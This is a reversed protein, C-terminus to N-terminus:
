ARLRFQVPRHRGLQGGAHGAGADHRNTGGAPRHSLGAQASNLQFAAQELASRRRRNTDWRWLVWLVMGAIAAVVATGTLALWRASRAWATAPAMWDAEDVGALVVLHRGPVRRFAHIRVLGDMGTPGIWTGADAAKQHIARYMMTNAVNLRPALAAPGAVAQVGGRRTDILAAVGRAGLSGEAFVKVLAASRYSAGILWGPRAQLPRILYMLCQRVIGNDAQEGLVLGPERGARYESMISELSGRGFNSM